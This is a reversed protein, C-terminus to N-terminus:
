FHFIGSKTSGCPKRPHREWPWVESQMLFKTEKRLPSEWIIKTECKM